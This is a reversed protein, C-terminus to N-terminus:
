LIRKAKVFSSFWYREALSSVLVGGKTTAHIFQVMGPRVAVVLGVHSIEKKRPNTEFFLLDGEQLEDIKIEVGQKAMDRSIRPLNVDYAKFSVYVLGSCDMGSKTTGGYKYRVGDFQKAYDIIESALNTREELALETKPNTIISHTTDKYTEEKKDSKSQTTSNSSKKTQKSSKCSSFSLLICVIIIIKKMM